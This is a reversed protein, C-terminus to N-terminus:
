PIIKYKQTQNYVFLFFLSKKLHLDGVYFFPQWYRLNQSMVVGFRVLVVVDFARKMIVVFWAALNIKICVGKMAKTATSCAVLYLIAHLHFAILV